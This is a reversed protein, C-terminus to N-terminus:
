AVIVKYQLLTTYTGVEEISFFVSVSYTGPTAGNLDVVISHSSENHDFEAHTEWPVPQVNGWVKAQPFLFVRAKNKDQSLRIHFVEGCTAHIVSDLHSQPLIGCSYMQPSYYLSSAFEAKTLAQPVLQWQPVEPYHSNLFQNAPTMFFYPNFDKKFSFDPNLTGSSWTIDVLHWVGDLHFVNWMHNPVILSKEDVIASRAWGVVRTAECGAAECLAVFLNCFGECVAKGSDLIGDPSMDCEMYTGYRLSDSDYEINDCIWRFIARIKEVDKDSCKALYKSLSAVNNTFKPPCMLAYDDIEVWRNPNSEEKMAEKAKGLYAKLIENSPFLALGDQTASICEEYFGRSILSKAKLEHAEALIDKAPAPVATIITDVATMTMNPQTLQEYAHALMLLIEHDPEPLCALAVKAQIAAEKMDGTTYATVMKDKAESASTSRSYYEVASETDYHLYVDYRLHGDEVIKNAVFLQTVKKPITTSGYFMDHTSSAQSPAPHLAVISDFGETLVTLNAHTSKKIAICFTQELDRVLVQTVPWYVRLDSDDFASYTFMNKSDGVTAPDCLIAKDLQIVGIAPCTQPSPSPGSPDIDKSFGRTIPRSKKKSMHMRSKSQRLARRSASKKIAQQQNDGETEALIEQVHRQHQLEGEKHRPDSQPLPLFIPFMQRQLTIVKNVTYQMFAVNKRNAETKSMAFLFEQFDVTGNGDVDIDDIIEMLEEASLQVGQAQIVTTIEPISLDGSGDTDFTNFAARFEAVQQETFGFNVDTVSTMRALIIAKDTNKIRISKNKSFRPDDALDSEVQVGNTSCAGGM